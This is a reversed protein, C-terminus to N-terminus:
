EEMIAKLTDATTRKPPALEIIEKSTPAESLSCKGQWLAECSALFSPLYKEPFIGATILGNITSTAKYEVDQVKVGVYQEVMEVIQRGTIDEPGNLIYRVQNHPTPDDLALLYAGVKGVDEPDIMAVPADAALITPLTGQNGTKQYQKIWDVIPAIFANTFLNPQLSTWQLSRFEPQSLLSEIAWHTRGYFVPSSPSVHVASTSLKVVYKVGAQLLAVYLASEDLFQHPLNHSAVYVKVVEQEKLWDADITTWDKEQMEVLPLKALKQSTPSNLSRTLGLIRYNSNKSALLTPLNYVVGKGTNGTAGIVLITPAM